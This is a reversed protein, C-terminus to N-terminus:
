AVKPRGGLKGNERATQTKRESRVAGGASGIRAMWTKSGLINQMLAPIYVDADVTPFHLSLGSPSPEIQKLDKETAESLGQIKGPLFSIQIDTPFCVVVRGTAPDYHAETAAYERQLRRGRQEAAEVQKLSIPM